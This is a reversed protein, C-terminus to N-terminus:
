ARPQPLDSLAPMFGKFSFTGQEASSMSCKLFGHCMENFVVKIQHNYSKTILLGPKVWSLLDSQKGM